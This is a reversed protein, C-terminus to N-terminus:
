HRTTDGPSRLGTGDRGLILSPPNDLDYYYKRITVDAKVVFTNVANLDYDKMGTTRFASRFFNGQPSKIELVVGVDTHGVLVSFGKFDIERLKNRLLDALLQNYTHIHTRHNALLDLEQEHVVADAQQDQKLIDRAESVSGEALGELREYEKDLQQKSKM